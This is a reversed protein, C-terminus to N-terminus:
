KLYKTLFRHIHEELVPENKYINFHWDDFTRNADYYKIYTNKTKQQLLKIEWDMKPIRNRRGLKSKQKKTNKM